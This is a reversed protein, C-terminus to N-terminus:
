LRVVAVGHRDLELEAATRRNGLLERKGAPVRVVRKDETQNILFLRADTPWRKRPWHEPYYDVGVYM